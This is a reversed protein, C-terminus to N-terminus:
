CTVDLRRDPGAWKYEQAFPRRPIGEFEFEVVNHPLDGGAGRPFLMTAWWPRHSEAPRPRRSARHRGMLTDM